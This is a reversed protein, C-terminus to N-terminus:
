KKDNKLDEAELLSKWVVKYVEIATILVLAIMILVCFMLFLNWIMLKLSETTLWNM